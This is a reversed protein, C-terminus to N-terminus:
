GGTGDGELAAVSWAATSGSTLGGGGGVAGTSRTADALASTSPAGRLNRRRRRVEVVKSGALLGAIGVLVAAVIVAAEKSM